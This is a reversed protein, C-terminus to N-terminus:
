KLECAAGGKQKMEGCFSESIGVRIQYSSEGVM